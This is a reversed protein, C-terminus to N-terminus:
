GGAFRERDVVVRDVEGDAVLEGSGDVARVGFRLRSGDSGGVAEASVEVTDGVRSPRRHRLRVATGVSTQGPQLVTAAARVTAAELWALLRPTGLVEVDGSGLAAATDAETVTFQLRATSQRSM